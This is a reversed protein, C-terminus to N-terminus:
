VMDVSTVSVCHCGLTQLGRGWPLSWPWTQLAGQLVCPCQGGKALTLVAVAYPTLESQNVVFFRTGEFCLSSPSELPKTM